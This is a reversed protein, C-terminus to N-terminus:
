KGHEIITGNKPNDVALPL